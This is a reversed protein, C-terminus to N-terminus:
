SAHSSGEQARGLDSNVYRSASAEDRAWVAVSQGRPGRVSFTALGARQAVENVTQYLSGGKIIGRADAVGQASVAGHEQVHREAELRNALDMEEARRARRIRRVGAPVERAPPVLILVAPPDDPMVDLAARFSVVKITLEAVEKAIREAEDQARSLSQQAQSLQLETEDVLAQLGAKMCAMQESAM